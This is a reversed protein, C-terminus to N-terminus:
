SKTAHLFVCVHFRNQYRVAGLFATYPTMGFDTFDLDLVLEIDITDGDRSLRLPFERSVTRGRITIDLQTLYADSPAKGMSPDRRLGAATATIAPFNDADLESESLIIKGIKKRRKESTKGLPRDIVGANVLSLNWREETAPDDVVLSDVKIALDFRLSALDDDASLKATYDTPSTLHDTLFPSALGGKHTVIGILSNATDITYEDADAASLTLM